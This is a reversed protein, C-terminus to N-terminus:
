NVRDLRLTVLFDGRAWAITGPITGSGHPRWASFRVEEPVFGLQTPTGGRIALLEGTRADFTLWEYAGETTEGLAVMADAGTSPDWRLAELSRFRSPDFGGLASASIASEVPRPIEVDATLTAGSEPDWIMSFSGVRSEDLGGEVSITGSATFPPASAGPARALISDMSPLPRPDPPTAAWKADDLRPVTAPYPRGQHCTFCTVTPEGQFQAENIGRTLLVMQRAIQKEPKTEEDFYMTHCHSCDVGLSNAFLAMVPYLESSPLGKLVRINKFREEASPDSPDDSSFFAGVSRVDIERGRPLKRQEVAADRLSCSLMLAVLGAVSLRKSIMIIM